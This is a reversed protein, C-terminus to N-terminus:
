QGCELIFGCYYADTEYQGIEDIYDGQHVVTMCVLVCGRCDGFIYDQMDPSLNGNAIDRLNDMSTNLAIPDLTIPDYVDIVSVSSNERLVTDFMRGVKPFAPMINDYGREEPLISAIFSVGDANLMIGEGGDEPKYYTTGYAFSSRPAFVLGGDELQLYCDDELGVYPDHEDVRSLDVKVMGRYDLMDKPDYGCPMILEFGRGDEEWVGMIELGSQFTWFGDKEHMFYGALENYLSAAVEEASGPEWDRRWIFVFRDPYGEPDDEDIDPGYEHSIRYTVVAYGSTITIEEFEAGYPVRTPMYIYSLDHLADGESHTGSFVATKLSIVDSFVEEKSSLASPAPTEFPEATTYVPEPAATPEAEKDQVAPATERVTDEAPQQASVNGEKPKILRPVAIAAAVILVLAAAATLWKIRKKKKGAFAAESVVSDDMEGLAASVEIPDKSM